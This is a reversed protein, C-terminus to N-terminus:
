ATKGFPSSQRHFKMEVYARMMCSAESPYSETHVEEEDVLLVLVRLWGPRTTDVVIEADNITKSECSGM